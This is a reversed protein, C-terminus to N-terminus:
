HCSECEKQLETALLKKMRDISAQEQQKFEQWFQQLEPVGEANAIYQDYRWVGTLCRSMTQILDHVHNESGRSEGIHEMTKEATTPM